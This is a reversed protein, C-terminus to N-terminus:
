KKGRRKRPLQTPASTFTDHGLGNESHNNGRYKLDSAYKMSDTPVVKIPHEFDKNKGKVRVTSAGDTQTSSAASTPGELGKQAQQAQLAKEMMKSFMGKRAPAAGGVPIEPPPAPKWAAKRPLFGLGPLNPLSGFGHTVIMAVLAVLGLAVAIPVDIVVLALVCVFLLLMTM